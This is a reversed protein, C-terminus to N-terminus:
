VEWRQGHETHVVEIQPRADGPILRFSLPVVESMLVDPQDLTSTGVLRMEDGSRRYLELKWPRRDVILLEGTKVRAYFDLKEYTRNGRSRIEVGFDPGGVWHTGGNRALTGKLFMAVDPERFNHEWDEDRDSVNCGPLVDGRGPWKVALTGVTVLGSVLDQHENDPSPMVVYVGEWVEDYRDHGAARREAILHQRVYPDEVIMSPDAVTVTMSSEARSRSLCALRSAGVANSLLM